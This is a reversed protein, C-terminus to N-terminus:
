IISGFYGKLHQTCEQFIHIKKIWAWLIPRDNRNNGISIIWHVWGSEMSIQEMSAKNPATHQIARELTYVIGVLSKSLSGNGLWLELRLVPWVTFLFREAISISISLASESSGYSAFSAPLSNANTTKNSLSCFLWPNKKRGKMTEERQLM